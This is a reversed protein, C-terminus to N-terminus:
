KATEGEKVVEVDMTIVQAGVTLQVSHKGLTKIPASIKVSSEPIETAHEKKIAESIAAPSIAAYLKGTKSVKGTLHIVKGGLAISLSSQLQREQERELARQKIQEAYRKRVNPTVVLAKRSPLLHNLAFGSKVVILDNKKGIGLIDTLLLVEM